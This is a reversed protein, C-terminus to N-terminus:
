QTILKIYLTSTHMEILNIVNEKHLLSSFCTEKNQTVESTSHKCNM